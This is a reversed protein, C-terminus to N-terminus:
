GRGRPGCRRARRRAGPPAPARRRCGASGRSRAAGGARARRDAGVQPRERRPAGLLDPGNRTWGIRTAWLTSSLRARAMSVGAPTTSALPSKLISAAAASRLLAGVELRERGPAVAAHQRQEGVARVDLLRPAVAPSSSTSGANSSTSPACARGRARRRSRWRSGACGARPRGRPARRAAGDGEHAAAHDVVGLHRMSRPRRRMGLARLDRGVDSPSIGGPAPGDHEDRAALALRQGRQGQHAHALVAVDRAPGPSM